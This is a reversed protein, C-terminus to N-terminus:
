LWEFDGEELWLVGDKGVPLLRDCILTGFFNVLVGPQVRVPEGGSDDDGAAKREYFGQNQLASEWCNIFEWVEEVRDFGAECDYDNRATYIEYRYDRRKDDIAVLFYWENRKSEDMPEFRVGDYLPYGGAPCNNKFQM